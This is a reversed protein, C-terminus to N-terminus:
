LNLYYSEPTWVKACWYKSTLAKKSIAMHKLQMLFFIKFELSPYTSGSVLQCVLLYDDFIEVISRIEFESEELM